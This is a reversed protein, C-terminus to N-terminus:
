LLWGGTVGIVDGTVFQAEDSVLFLVASAVGRSRKAVKRADARHSRYSIAVDAGARALALAIAKGIRRSGGTVLAARGDLSM